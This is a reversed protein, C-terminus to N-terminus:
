ETETCKESRIQGFFTANALIEVLVSIEDETRKEISILREKLEELEPL